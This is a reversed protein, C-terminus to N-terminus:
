FKGRNDRCFDEIRLGRPLKDNPDVMYEYIDRVDLRDLASDTMTNLDVVFGNKLRVLM